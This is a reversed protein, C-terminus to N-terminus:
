PLNLDLRVQKIIDYNIDIIIHTDYYKNRIHTKELSTNGHIFLYPLHQKENLLFKIPKLSTEHEHDYEKYGIFPWSLKYMRNLYPYANNPSSIFINGIQSKRLPFLEDEYFYDNPWLNRAHLNELIIKKDEKKYIFIDVFPFKYKQLNKEIYISKGTLKYIKYGLHFPVLGYGIDNFEKELSILKSEDFIGLDADDDWPIIDHHRISGLLTGSVSWYELKNKNFVQDIDYLSKLLIYNVNQEQDQYLICIIFIIIPIYLEM